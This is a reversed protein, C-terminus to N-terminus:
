PAATAAPCAQLIVALLPALTAHAVRLADFINLSTDRNVNGCGPPLEPADEVESFTLGGGM